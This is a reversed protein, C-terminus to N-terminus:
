SDFLMLSQSLMGLKLLIFFYYCYLSNLEIKQNIRILPIDMKLFVLTTSSFLFTKNLQLFSFLRFFSKVIRFKNALIFVFIRTSSSYYLNGKKTSLSHNTFIRLFSDQVLRPARYRFISYAVATSRTISKLSIIISGHVIIM